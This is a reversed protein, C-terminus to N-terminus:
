IGIQKMLVSLEHKNAITGEFVTITMDKGKFRINKTIVIKDDFISLMYSHRAKLHYTSNGKGYIAWGLSEIDERDLRKSGEDLLEEVSVEKLWWKPITAYDGDKAWIGDESYYLSGENTMCSRGKQPLEEEVRIEKFIRSM